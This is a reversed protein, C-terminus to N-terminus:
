AQRAARGEEELFLVGVKAKSLKEEAKPHFSAIITM